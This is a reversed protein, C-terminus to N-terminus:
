LINNKYYDALDKWFGEEDWDKFIDKMNATNRRCLPETFETQVLCSFPTETQLYKKMYAGFRKAFDSQKEAYCGPNFRQILSSDSCSKNIFYAYAKALLTVPINDRIYEPTKITPTENKRWTNVLYTTFRPEEFPGFPNPIVFKGLKLEKNQCYYRFIQFTLNKSLGYPSFAELQGNDSEGEDNEFYSGTLIIEKCGKGKLIDLTNSINNTNEKLAAHIDFGPEKYDKVYSAHHCLLDWTENDNILKIFAGDGFKLGFSAKCIKTLKKVRQSRVGSYSDESAQTFIASVDHGNDVLEKIFWYGTFSSAGTFLIKM